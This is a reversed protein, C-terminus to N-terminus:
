KPLRPPTWTPSLPPSPSSSPMGFRFELSIFPLIVNSVVVPQSRRNSPEGMEKGTQLREWGRDEGIATSKNYCLHRSCVGRRKWRSSSRRGERVETWGRSHRGYRSLLRKTASRARSRSLRMCRNKSSVHDVTILRDLVRCCARSTVKGGVMLRVLEDLFRSREGLTSSNFWATRWFGRVRVDKSILLAPPVRVDEKAM